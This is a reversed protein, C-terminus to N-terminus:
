VHLTVLKKDKCIFMVTAFLYLVIKLGTLGFVEDADMNGMTSHITTYFQLNRLAVTKEIGTLKICLAQKTVAHAANNGLGYNTDTAPNM